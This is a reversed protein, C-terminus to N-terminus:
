PAEGIVFTTSDILTGHVLTKTALLRATAPQGVRAALELVGTGRIRVNGRRAEIAVQTGRSIPPPLAVDASTIVAGAAIAHTATAGTLVDVPAPAMGEVARDEVVLEGLPAGAAIARSSVAVRVVPAISVSAWVTHGGAIIKISTRGARLERPLDIAVNAPDLHVRQMIQIRAVGLGLPLAPVLQQRIVDELPDAHASGALMALVLLAKM